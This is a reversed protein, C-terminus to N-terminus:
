REMVVEKRSVPEGAHIPCRRKWGHRARAMDLHHLPRCCSEDDRRAPDAKRGRERGPRSVGERGAAETLGRKWSQYSHM